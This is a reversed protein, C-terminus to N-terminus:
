FPLAPDPPPGPASCGPGSLTRGARPPPEPVRAPPDPGPDPGPDPPRWRAPVTTVELGSAAHTWRRRGDPHQRARWGAAEKARNTSGCLPAINPADTRGPVEDPSTPHWPRAHDLQATRAPRDCLPGACTDHVALTLDRLWGPPVRTARGVGLVRGDDVIVTRLEAGRIDLLRRAATSTLRLSGGTLRTLLDAPARSADLLDDFEWRLLLKVPPLARGAAAGTDGADHDDDVGDGDEAPLGGPDHTAGAAGPGDTEVDPVCSHTLRALLNDARAGRTGGPHDLQGRTPATAEDVIALGLADLDGHVRGGTGDLRPQLHLQNSAPTEPAPALQAQWEATARRVHEIVTDPDAGELHPLLRALLGDVQADLVRPADRLLLALGRLQPWSLTRGDAAEQLAPFRHLLRATTLLLRRDLRTHRSVIAIWQELGVGSVVPIRHDDLLRALGVIAALTARDARDLDDLLAALEPLEDLVPLGFPPGEDPGEPEVAPGAAAVGTAATVAEAAGHDPADARTRAVGASAPHCHLATPSM